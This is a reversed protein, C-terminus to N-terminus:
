SCAFDDAGVPRCLDPWGKARWYDVLGAKRMLAKFRETKRLPAFEPFWLLGFTVAGIDDLEALREPLDLARDPVGAYAYIFNLESPLTPLPEPSKEAKRGSRLIQAAQVVIQRSTGPDSPILLLTEAAEADRAGATYARALFASRDIEGSIDAPIAELIPISAQSEGNAQMVVALDHNFVPVFPEQARLRQRTRLSDQLRGVGLLLNSYFDLVEPENPDLALAQRSLDDTEVWKGLYLRSRALASYGLPHRPDLRIAERAAMEAKNQGSQLLRRTEELSGTREPRNTGSLIQSSRSLLAWAPAFEPDRAVISDLLTIAQSLDRARFLARARLYQQYSELDNTRNSVLREGQGLGLPVRLSAVIAQAIEEQIAFVDTLERDYNDTWLGIGDETKILQATIRVRTGSRRVSGDILYTAGLSQGISRLDRNQGKFQFASSRGVMRLSPVRALAAIIEDTMGDSFFEQSADGSVNAFPLVALSIASAQSAAAERAAEVGPQRPALQQYGMFLLVLALAGVLTWDLAANRAPRGGESPMQQVWAFILTIPFGILLLLVVLSSAWEPLRLAPSLNNVVQIALWAVVLYTAAIRYIQRRKLEAFFEAMGRRGKLQVRFRRRRGAPLREAM